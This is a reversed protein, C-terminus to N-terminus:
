EHQAIGSSRVAIKLFHLTKLIPSLGGLDQIRLLDLEPNRLLLGRVIDGNFNEDSLLRLM